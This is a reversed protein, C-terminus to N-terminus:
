PLFLGPEVCFREALIKIHKKSLEREGRLIKSGLSRDGLLKGLDSANMGNEEILYELSDRAKIHTLDIRPHHSNEWDELLLSLADLYSIQKNSLDRTGAMRSAMKFAEQYDRETRIPRLRDLSALDAWSNGKARTVKRSGGTRVRKTLIRTGKERVVTKKKSSSAKTYGESKKAKKKM